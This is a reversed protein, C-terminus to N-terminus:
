KAEDHAPQPWPQEELVPASPTVWGGGRYRYVRMLSKTVDGALLPHSAGLRQLAAEYDDSLEYQDYSKDFPTQRLHITGVYSAVGPLVHVIITPSENWWAHYTGEPLVSYFDSAPGDSEPETSFTEGSGERVWLVPDMRKKPFLQWWESLAPLLKGEADVLEVRLIAIGTESDGLAYGPRLTAPTVACAALAALSLLAFASRTV